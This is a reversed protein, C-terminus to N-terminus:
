VVTRWRPVLLSLLLAGGRAFKYCAMALVKDHPGPQERQHVSWKHSHIPPEIWGLSCSNRVPTRRSQRHKSDLRVGLTVGQLAKPYSSATSQLEITRALFVLSPFAIKELNPGSLSAYYGVKQSPDKDLPNCAFDGSHPFALSMPLHDISIILYGRPRIYKVTPCEM